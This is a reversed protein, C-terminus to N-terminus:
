KIVQNVPEMKTRRSPPQVTQLDDERMPHVDTYRVASTLNLTSTNSISIPRLHNILKERYPKISEM